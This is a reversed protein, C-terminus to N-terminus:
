VSHTSTLLSHINDLLEAEQYPKGLYSNVGIEMARQRHKEGHRSTIMIIPIDRLRENNRVHQALEYGDMRPMEIDLLMIDPVQDQLKGVADVGDKATFVNMGHRELLRTTVKRVTISDDVVMVTIQQRQEEVKQEVPTAEDPTKIAGIRVLTTVDLILVVRGDGLITAGSIWNVNSLQPGVSKVVIERNGMLADVQLAVRHQGSRVLLVPFWRGQEPLSPQASGLLTCLHQVHYKHGAYEYEKDKTYSRELEERSLRVVGDISSHPVAYVDENVQVLLAQNIALTFPLRITFQSGKDKESGIELVGGLQKIESNVVDMGVGRGSIQTIQQATSLGSHLILRLIDEKPAQDAEEQTYIGAKIAKNKVVDVPIGAGDDAIDLVIDTGDRSLTLTIKGTEPKGKAKRDDPTEIGHSIANRIMHELPAMMGDLITRDMEGEAGVVELEVKKNLQNCTQRVLRNMRPVMSSFPVMRTRMLGEHLETIVRSQQLLLTESERSLNEMIEQISVLDSISELLSRSLQQMNSFRDMELPDFEEDKSDPANKEYRFLMQAETEIEFKRLQERLRAVTQSLETLNFRFTGNQQELRARYISIEGSYNVMDDLLDARVKIQEQAVRKPTKVKAMDEEEVKKNVPKSISTQQQDTQLNTMVSKPLAKVFDELQDKPQSKTELPTVTNQTKAEKSHHAQDQSSLEISEAITETTESVQESSDLPQEVIESVQKQSDSVTLQSDSEATTLTESIQQLDQALTEMSIDADSTDVLDTLSESVTNSIGEIVTDGGINESDLLPDRESIGTDPVEKVINELDNILATAPVLDQKTAITDLMNILGDTAQHSLDIVPESVTLKGQSVATLMTEFSHTLDAMIEFGSMKANGKITHLSRQLDAVFKMNTPEAVFSQLSADLTELLDSCEELFITLLEDDLVDAKLEEEVRDHSMDNSAQEVNERLQELYSVFPQYEPEALKDDALYDMVDAIIGMGKELAQIIEANVPRKSLLLSKVIYELQRSVKAIPTVEAMHASGHLTHLARKLSENCRLDDGTEGAQSIFSQIVDTHGKTEQQFISLLTADMRPQAPAQEAFDIAEIDYGIDADVITQEQESEIGLAELDLSMTQDQESESDTSEETSELEFSMAEDTEAVSEEADTEPIEVANISELSMSAVVDEAQGESLANAKAQITELDITIATGHQYADVVIPLVDIVSDMVQYLADTIEVTEDIVRNLLNEIAWALESITLAQVMRGSGKMTHFARRFITLAEKDGTAKWQPYYTKIDELVELAEEIFIEKIEDDVDGMVLEVPAVAEPIVVMPEALSAEVVNSDTQGDAHSSEFELPALEVANDDVESSQQTSIDNETLEPTSYEAEDHRVTLDPDNNEIPYGLTAVSEEIMALIDSRYPRGEDVAEVYYEIGTIADALYNSHDQSPEIKNELLNTTIYQSISDLSLNIRDMGLIEFAGWIIHFSNPTNELLQYKSPNDIYEIIADKARGIEITIEHLVMGLVRQFEVEPVSGDLSLDANMEDQDYGSEFLAIKGTLLGDLATEIVLLESAVNMISDDKIKTDASLLSALYEIQDMMKQRLGGQGMMGLTDAIKRLSEQLKSLEDQNQGVRIYLDLVDKVGALDEKIAVIVTRLMDVTPASLDAQASSLEAESPLARDLAFEDKIQNVIQSGRNSRAIYYLLNKLLNEPLNNALRSEDYDILYKLIQRDVHGVLLKVAVSSELDDNILADVLGSCVWWLKKVPLFTASNELVELVDQIRKLGEKAEGQYWSLLGRQYNHRLSKALASLDNEVQDQQYVQNHKFNSLNPSFLAEESLLNDGRSARLDNMLPLLVLPIDKSGAQLRELYDPIQLIARSLVEVADEKRAIVDQKLGSIVHSMEELLQVAGYLGVMQLVGHVQHLLKALADLEDLDFGSEMYQELAHGALKLTEDVETKIWKIASYDITDNM